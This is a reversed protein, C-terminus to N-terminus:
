RAGSLTDLPLCLVYMVGFREFALWTSIYLDHDAVPKGLGAVCDEDTSLIRQELEPDDKREMDSLVEQLICYHFWPDYPTEPDPDPKFAPDPDPDPKQDRAFLPDSDLPNAIPAPDPKLTTILRLIAPFPM